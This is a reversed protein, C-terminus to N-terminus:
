TETIVTSNSQRHIIEVLTDTTPPINTTEASDKYRSVRVTGSLDVLVLFLPWVLETCPNLKMEYILRKHAILKM